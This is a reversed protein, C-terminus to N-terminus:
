GVASPGSKPRGRRRVWSSGARGSRPRRGSPACRPRTRPPERSARRSRRRTARTATTLVARADVCADGLFDMVPGAREVPTSITAEVDRCSSPSRPPRASPSSRATTPPRSSARMQCPHLIETQTCCVRRESARRPARPAGRAGEGRRDECRPAREGDRAWRGHRPRRVPPPPAGSFPEIQLGDHLAVGCDREVADGRGAM